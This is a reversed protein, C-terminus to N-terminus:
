SSALPGATVYQRVVEMDPERSLFLTLMRDGDGEVRRVMMEVKEGPPPTEAAAARREDPSPASEKGQLGHSAACLKAGPAETKRGCGPMRSLFWCNAALSAALAVTSVASWVVSKMHSM